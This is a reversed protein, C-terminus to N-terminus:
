RDPGYRGAVYDRAGRVVAAIRDSFAGGAPKAAHALNLAFIMSSRCTQALPLRAPTTRKAMLLHNRSAFYLRRPSTPGISRGGSHYALAAGAVISRFGARRARICFDIDEFSYFYDEDFFGISEFVRHDILVACGSIATVLVDGRGAVSAVSVGVDRQRMRGTAARYSIGASVVTDPKLPSVVVPGVIGVDPGVLLARELHAVATPALMVDSNLLLVADAGAALAARIGVNVGGSFGLNRGTHLYKVGSAPSADHRRATDVTDNDIVVIEDLRRTSEILSGVAQLTDDPSRYNLVAAAIRIPDAM